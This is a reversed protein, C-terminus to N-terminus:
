EVSFWCTIKCTSGCAEDDLESPYLANEEARLLQLAETDIETLHHM